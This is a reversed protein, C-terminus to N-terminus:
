TLKEPITVNGPAGPRGHHRRGRAGRGCARRSRCGTGRGPGWGPGACGGLRPAARRRRGPRPGRATRDLLDAVGSGGRGQCRETQTSPVSNRAKEAESPRHRTPRGDTWSNVTRRSRASRRRSAKALVNVTAAKGAIQSTLRSSSASTRWGAWRRRRRARRPRHTPWGRRVVGRWQAADVRHAVAVRQEAVLSRGRRRRPAARHRDAAGVSDDRRRERGVASRDAGAVGARVVAQGGTGGDFTTLGALPRDISHTVLGLSRASPTRTSCGSRNTSSALRM